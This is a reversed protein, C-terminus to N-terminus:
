SALVVPEVIGRETLLDVANDFVRKAEERPVADELSAIFEGRATEQTKGDLIELVLWSTANLCAVNPNDPTYALLMSWEGMPRIRVNEKKRYTTSATTSSM